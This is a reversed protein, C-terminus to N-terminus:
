KYVEAQRRYARAYSGNRSLLEEHSGHELIRGGELVIIQDASRTTSYRHSIIVVVGGTLEATARAHRVLREVIDREILADLAAAPEDLIMVLSQPRTLARAIAVRQWEGASLGVGGLRTGLQQKLGAPLKEALGEAGAKGLAALVWESDRLRPLYGVGVSEGLTFEFCAFHQPVVALRSFWASPAIRDVPTGDVLTQGRSPVLMGTLLNALTSKGAGNEGVVAVVQGARLHADLGILAPRVSGPYCFEAAALHIGDGLVAPAPVGSRGRLCERALDRLWVYERALAAVQQAQTAGTVLRSAQEALQVISIITLFAIGPFTKGPHLNGLVWLETGLGAGLVLWALARWAVTHWAARTLDADIARWGSSYRAALRPGAGYVRLEKGEASGTGVDYLHLSARQREAVAAEAASAIRQSRHYIAAAALAAAPFVLLDPSITALLVAFGAVLGISIAIQNLVSLGQSLVRRGGRLREVANAYGVSSLLDLRDIADTTRMVEDDIRLAASERLRLLTSTGQWYGAVFVLFLGAGSIAAWVAVQGNRGSLYADITGRGALAIVVAGLPVVPVLALLARFRDARFSVGLIWRWAVMSTLAAPRKRSAAEGPPLPRTM